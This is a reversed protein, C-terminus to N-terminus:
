RLARLGLLATSPLTVALLEPERRRGPKVSMALTHVVCPSSSVVRRCVCGLLYWRSVCGAECEGHCAASAAGAAAWRGAACVKHTSTVSGAECYHGPSCAGTCLPTTSGGTGFRPCGCLLRGDCVHSGGDQVSGGWARLEFAVVCRGAPCLGSCTATALQQTAGYSGAPCPFRLGSVCFNGEPCVIESCYVGGACIM